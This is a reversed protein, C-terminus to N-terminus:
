GFCHLYAGNGSCHLYAGNGVMVAFSEITNIPLNLFHAIRPQMINHSNSSDILVAVPHGLIATTFRFTKPSPQGNVAHMSLHFHEQQPPSHNPAPSTQNSTNLITTPIPPNPQSFLFFDDPSPTQLPDESDDEPM